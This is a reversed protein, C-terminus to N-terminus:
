ARRRRAIAVLVKDCTKTSVKDATGIYCHLSTVFTVMYRKYAHLQKKGSKRYGRGQRAEPVPILSVVLNFWHGLHPPGMGASAGWPRHGFHRRAWAEM